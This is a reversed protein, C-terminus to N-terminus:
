GQRGRAIWYTQIHQAQRPVRFETRTFERVVKALQREGAAWLFCDQPDLHATALELVDDDITDLWVINGRTPIPIRDRDPHDDELLVTVGMRQGISELISAAGALASPDAIVLARSTQPIKLSYPPQSVSITTGPGASAAWESGPGSPTHLVFELQFTDSTIGRLSYSRPLTSAGVPVNLHLYAGPDPTAAEFLGKADITLRRYWPTLDTAEVVEVIHNKIRQRQLPSDM